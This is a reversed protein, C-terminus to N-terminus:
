KKNGRNNHIVQRVEFRNCCITAAIVTNNVKIYASISEEIDGILISPNTPQIKTGVM